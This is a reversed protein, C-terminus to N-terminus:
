NSTASDVAAALTGYLDQFVEYSNSNLLYDLVSYNSSQVQLNQLKEVSNLFQDSLIHVSYLLNGTLYCSVHARTFSSGCKCTRYQLSRNFRWDCITRFSTSALNFVTSSNDRLKTTPCYYAILPSTKATEVRLKELKRRKWSFWTLPKSGKERLYEALYESNFCQHLIFHSSSSVCYVSRAKVLPNSPTLRKFSANLGGLLCEMRYELSGFGCMFDMIKLHQARGFIFKIGEAHATKLIKLTSQRTSPSRKIWIWVLPLVYENIPRIFTRYLILKLRPHWSSNNLSQMFKSQKETAKVATAAWDVRDCSHVAGLYKYTDRNQIKKSELYLTVPSRAVM